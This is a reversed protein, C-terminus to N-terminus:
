LLRLIGFVVFPLALSAGFGIRNIRASQGERKTYDENHAMLATVVLSAALFAYAALMIQDFLTLRGLTPLSVTQSVHFGVASILMSTGFTIRQAIKSPHLYFSLGSVVMFAIPPLFTRLAASLPERGVAITFIFRSYEEDFEYSKISAQANAGLIRWGAVAVDSDLGSGSLSPVYVLGTAPQVSDEMILRLQQRDFPYRDFRPEAYLNTQIRWWISRVGDENTDTLLEKSTARGNMFEFRTVDFGSPAQSQNYWLNLYLDLTYTGKNVDYNGFSIVHLDVHVPVPEASAVPVALLLLLLPIWWFRV